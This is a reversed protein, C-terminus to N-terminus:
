DWVVEGTAQYVTDGTAPDTVTFRVGLGSNSIDFTYELTATNATGSMIGLYIEGTLVDNIM